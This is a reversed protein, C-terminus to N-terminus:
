AEFEKLINELQELTIYYERRTEEGEIIKWNARQRKQLAIETAKENITELMAQKITKM